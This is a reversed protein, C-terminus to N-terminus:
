GGSLPPFFEVAAGRQVVHDDGVIADNVCARLAPRMLDAEAHPYERALRSRLNRVTCGEAPLDLEIERGIREGLSGFFSIKLAQRRGSGIQRRAIEWNIVSILATRFVAFAIGTPLRGGM